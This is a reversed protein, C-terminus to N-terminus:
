SPKKGVGTAPVSLIGARVLFSRAQEPNSALQAVYQSSDRPLVSRHGGGVFAHNSNMTTM